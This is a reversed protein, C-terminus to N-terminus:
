WPDMTAICKTVVTDSVSIIREFIAKLKLAIKKKFAVCFNILTQTWVAAIIEIFDHKTNLFILGKTWWYSLNQENWRWKTATKSSFSKLALIQDM